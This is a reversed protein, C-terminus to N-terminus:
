KTKISNKFLKSVVHLSICQCKDTSIDVCICIHFHKIESIISSLNKSFSCPFFSSIFFFHSLKKQITYPRLIPECRLVACKKPLVKKISALHLVDNLMRQFKRVFMQMHTQLVSSCFSTM